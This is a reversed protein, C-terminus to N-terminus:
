NISKLKKSYMIFVSSIFFINLVFGLLIYIASDLLYNNNYLLITIIRTSWFGPIIYILIETWNNIFLAALPILLLISTAKMLVFGEVKNNAFLNIVLALLPAQLNVLVILLSIIIFNSNLMNSVLILLITTIVSLLYSFLLKIILYYNINIPSIKLSNIVNDDRDDLITFGTIFGFIMPNILIFIIILIDGVIEPSNQKLYPFLFYSILIILFPYVLFFLYTKDRLINKLEQNFIRKIM